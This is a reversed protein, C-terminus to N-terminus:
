IAIWRLCPSHAPGRATTPRTPPPPSSGGAGGLRCVFPSSHLPIYTVTRYQVTSYQVTSYQLKDGTWPQGRSAAPRVDESSVQVPGPRAGAAVTNTIIELHLIIWMTFTKSLTTTVAEESCQSIKHHGTWLELQGGDDTCFQQVWTDALLPGCAPSFMGSTVLAPSTTRRAMGQRTEYLKCKNVDRSFSNHGLRKFNVRSLRVNRGRGKGGLQRYHFPLYFIKFYILLIFHSVM